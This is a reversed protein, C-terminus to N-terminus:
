NNVPTLVVRFEYPQANVRYEERPWAGWSNVCALGMQVLDVNVWTKGLARENEYAKAKLELSHAQNDDLMRVDMEKWSFPLASASFKVDSVIEFGAGNDDLVRMWKLGTKTGSEQPRVYGYHYQDEVRQVYHGVLASSTRDIYNEHPGYGFFEFTSYAGNMAFNLGFRPLMPAEALKGADAMSETLILTGDAYVEYKMRVDAADGITEYAVSVVYCSDTKAVDFSAVKFEAKRWMDQRGDQRAGLDNEIAARGFCPMLPEEVLAKEGLEYAVLAGEYADFVAKWPAVRVNGSGDFCMDGYFTHLTGNQGYEPLGSGNFVPALAAENLCIQDYSVESGAALIGDARKLMYRVNLYVDHGALDQCGGAELIDAENFGLDVKAIKQPAVDLSSVAGSLVKVGDVEVDWEMMYRSLDIFFNENYVEVVGALVDAATTHISRYQYAVEYAHPHLSRDAAIIGNCCFSNDSPDYDNFDGGYVFVHDTGEEASPWCLAQDVFDWIFGGQYAPYKRVLDWYEKLGGMSNGMAHAYECQILPRAPNSQSYRECDRYDFYMPCFIDTKGNWIAPEYQVPRSSDMSKVLDYSAAFNPGDGAENGLSWIIVSPHNFDRQVVRRARELHAYEFDPNKALNGPGYMMGHSEVNAEDVVYLGYRDCLSYWLPDNPYHSTRVANINLRKMIQIDQIMDAESVVYGKYPNMEHRDAGKILVPQGNVLLQGGKIEVDRFGIQIATKETQGKKDFVAVELTYLWPTEASWQRVSPVDLSTRVVPFGRESREKASPAAVASAVEKGYPDLITLQLSKVGKAVEAYVAAEGAASGVVHIDELRNKERSYVYVDRAIGTLRWFDQDELYSGDCWRFIELAILNEGTKVFKTINFRAELKSDESYGVEKGNVWVRVNSTASGIHLFVDKGKWEEDLVFTKRYQGAHNHWEAPFPPNNEYHGRWAYGVNVYVPDGYGNMEWMGPVPMRDWGSADYDTRFFDASREAITEYWCFDWMGDLMMKLGDTEFSASMPLRNEAVVGPDQWAPLENKTASAAVAATGLSCACLFVAIIRKM